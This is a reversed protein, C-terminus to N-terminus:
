LKTSSHTLLVVVLLLLMIWLGLRAPLFVIFKICHVLLTRQIITLLLKMVVHNMSSSTLRVSLLANERLEWQLWSTLVVVVFIKEQRRCHHDTHLTFSRAPDVGWGSRLIYYFVVIFLLDILDFIKLM